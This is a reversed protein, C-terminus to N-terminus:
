GKLNVAEDIDGSRLRVHFVSQMIFSECINPGCCILHIVMAMLAISLLENTFASLLVGHINYPPPTKKCNPSSSAGSTHREMSPQTESVNVSDPM